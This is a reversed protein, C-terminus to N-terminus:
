RLLRVYEKLENRRIRWEPMLCDMCSYFEAGHNPHLFHVLEHLAVYIRLEEPCGALALNLTVYGQTHHCNGWQSRMRRVRLQPYEVGLSAVLPYAKSLSERLIQVSEKRDPLVAIPKEVSSVIQRQKCIIWEAKKGIFQEAYAASCHMPVSLVVTGDWRIHLNLNKIRKKLLRYDVKGQCTEVTRMEEMM